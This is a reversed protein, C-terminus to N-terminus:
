FGDFSYAISVGGRLEDYDGISQDYSRDEHAVFWKITANETLSQSLELQIEVTDYCTDPNDGPFTLESFEADVDVSLARSLQYDFTLGIARERSDENVEEYDQKEYMLNIGVVCTDCLNQTRYSLEANTQEYIDVEGETNGLESFGDNNNGQSTDTLEQKLVLNWQSGSYTYGANANLYRGGNDDQQRQTQNYGATIDYSLKALAASYSLTTLWYQYDSSDGDFVVDDYSFGLSVNSIKSLAHSGNVSAGLRESNNSDSDQYRIDTYSLSTKITDVSSLRFFIDPRFTTISRSEKNSEVDALAKDKLINRRTNEITWFLTKELQEYVLSGSGTITTEDDQEQNDYSKREADYSFQSILKEAAHDVSFNIRTSYEIGSQQNDAQKQVNDSHEAGLDITVGADLGLSYESFSLLCCAVLFSARQPYVSRNLFISAKM